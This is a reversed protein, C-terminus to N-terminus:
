FATALNLPRRMKDSVFQKARPSFWLRVGGEWGGHRNKEVIMITDPQDLMEANTPDVRLRREKRKNRHVLIVQDPMDSISSDGKMAFKDPPTEDNDPKRMHHILHIHCKLQQALRTIQNVMEKQANYNDAGDVIKMLSDIFIHKVKREIVAYRILAFLMSTKMNGVHDFLYLGSTVLDRFKGDIFIEPANDNMAFQDVMRSLTAEPTMELSVILTSEGQVVFGLSVMGTLLSKGGGNVGAWVTTETERFRIDNHTAGWPLKAGREHIPYQRYAKLREILDEAPVMKLELADEREYDLIDSTTIVNNKMVYVLEELTDRIEQGM